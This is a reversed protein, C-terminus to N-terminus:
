ILQAILILIGHVPMLQVDHLWSLPLGVIPFILERLCLSATLLLQGDQAALLKIRSKEVLEKRESHPVGFQYHNQKGM